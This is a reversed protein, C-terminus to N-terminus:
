SKRGRDVTIHWEIFCSLKNCFGKKFNGINYEKDSVTNKQCIIGMNFLSKGRRKARMMSKYVSAHALPIQFLDRDYVAAGYFTTDGFDSCFTSSVLGYPEMKGMILEACGTAIM